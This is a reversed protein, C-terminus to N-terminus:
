NELTGAPTWAAAGENISSMPMAGENTSGACLCSRVGSHMFVARILDGTFWSYFQLTFAYAASPQCERKYEINKM